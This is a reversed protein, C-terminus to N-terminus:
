SLIGSVSLDLQSLMLGAVSQFDAASIKMEERLIRQAETMVDARATALWRSVTSQNVGYMKAIRELSLGNILNLRYIMRERDGLRDLARSIAQQFGERLHGKILALEPSSVMARAEAAARDTAREEAGEHRHMMLAIRQAAIGLWGALPGQGAYTALKPPAPPAGVLVVDWLRQEVEDIFPTSGDIRRLYGALVNRHVTRLQAVVAADGNLCACAAFLDEAAVADPGASVPAGCRALHAVFIEDALVVGPHAARGRACIAALTGELVDAPAPGAEDGAGAARAALYTSALAAVGIEPSSLV